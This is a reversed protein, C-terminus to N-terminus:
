ILSRNAWVATPSLTYTSSSGIWVVSISVIMLRLRSILSWSQLLTRTTQKLGWWGLILQVRWYVEVASLFGPVPGLLTSIWSGTGDPSACPASLLYGVFTATTATVHQPRTTFFLTLCTCVRSLLWGIIILLIILRLQVQFVRYILEKFWCHLGWKATDGGINIGWVGFRSPFVGSDFRINIHFQSIYWRIVSLCGPIVKYENVLFM